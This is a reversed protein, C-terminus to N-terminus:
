GHQKLPFTCAVITGRTSGPRIKLVGGIMGSRYRMIHLGMGQASAAGEPIGKGDDKIVLRGSDQAATL